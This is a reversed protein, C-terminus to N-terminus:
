LGSRWDNLRDSPPILSGGRYFIGYGSPNSVLGNLEVWGLARDAAGITAGLAIVGGYGADLRLGVAANSAAVARAFDIRGGSVAVASDRAVVVAQDFSVASSGVIDGELVAMGGGSVAVSSSASIGGLVLGAATSNLSVSSGSGSAAVFFGSLVVSGGARFSVSGVSVGSATISRTTDLVVWGGSTSLSPSPSTAPQEGAPFNGGDTTVELNTFSNGRNMLRM